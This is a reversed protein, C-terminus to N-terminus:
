ISRLLQEFEFFNESRSGSFRNLTLQPQNM